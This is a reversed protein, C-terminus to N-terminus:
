DCFISFDKYHLNIQKCCKDGNRITFIEAKDHKENWENEWDKYRKKFDESKENRKKSPMEFFLYYSYRFLLLVVDAVNHLLPLDNITPHKDKRKELCVPLSAGVIIPLHMESSLDRLQGLIQILHKEVKKYFTGQKQNILANRDYPVFYQIDDIVVLDISQKSVIQKIKNIVYNINKEVRYFINYNKSFESRKKTMCSSSLFCIVKKNIKVNYDIIQKLLIENGMAPRSAIVALDSRGIENDLVSIGTKVYTTKEM